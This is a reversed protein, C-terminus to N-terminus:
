QSYRIAIPIAFFLVLLAAILAPAVWRGLVRNQSLYERPVVGLRTLVAAGVYASGLLGQLIALLGLGGIAPPYAAEVSGRTTVGWYIWVACFPVGFPAFLAAVRSVTVPQGHKARYSRVVLLTGVLEALIAAAMLANATM